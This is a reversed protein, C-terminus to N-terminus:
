HGSHAKWYEDMDELAMGGPQKARVPLEKGMANIYASKIRRELSSASVSQNILKNVRYYSPRMTVAAEMEDFIKNWSALSMNEDNSRLFRELLWLAEEDEDDPLPRALEEFPSAFLYEEYEVASSAVALALCLSARIPVDEFEPGWPYRQPAEEPAAHLSVFLLEGVANPYEMSPDKRWEVRQDEDQDHAERLARSWESDLGGLQDVWAKVRTLRARLRDGRSRLREYGADSRLIQDVAEIRRVMEAEFITGPGLAKWEDKRLLEYLDPAYEALLRIFARGIRLHPHWSRGQNPHVSFQLMGLMVDLETVELTPVYKRPDDTVEIV